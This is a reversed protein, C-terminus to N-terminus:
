LKSLFIGLGVAAIGAILSGSIYCVFTLYHHGELLRINELSFSSFTTYGGCFGTILLLKLNADPGPYKESIGILLGILLCGSINALFTALPFIGTLNLKHTFLSLLFRCISGIGGGLGVLLLQRIM